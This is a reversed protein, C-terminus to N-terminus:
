DNRNVAVNLAEVLDIFEEYVATLSKEIDDDTRNNKIDRLFEETAADVFGRLERINTEDDPDMKPLRAKVLKSRVRDLDRASRRVRTFDRRSLADHVLPHIVHNFAALEPIAFRREKQQASGVAPATLGLIVGLLVAVIRPMSIRAPLSVKLFVM